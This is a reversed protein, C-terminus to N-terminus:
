HILEYTSPNLLEKCEEKTAWLVDHIENSVTWERGSITSNTRTKRPIIMVETDCRYYINKYKKGDTGIFIEELPPKGLVRIMDPSIKVEEEFERLAADIGAENPKRRGKPFGYLSLIPETPPLELGKIILSKIKFFRDKISRYTRFSSFSDNYLVDFHNIYKKLKSREDPTCMRVYSIVKDTPCRPNFIDSYELSSGRDCILYHKKGYLKTFLIIGYSVIMEKCITIKSIDYREM